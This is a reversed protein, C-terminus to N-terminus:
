GIIQQKKASFDMSILFILDTPPHLHERVAGGGGRGPNM